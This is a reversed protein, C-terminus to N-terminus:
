GYRQCFKVTAERAVAESPRVRGGQSDYGPLRTINLFAGAEIKM